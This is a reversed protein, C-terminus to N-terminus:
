VPSVRRVPFPRHPVVLQTSTENLNRKHFSMQYHFKLVHKVAPTPYSGLSARRHIRSTSNFQSASMECIVKLKATGRGEFLCLGHSVYSSMHIKLTDCRSPYSLFRQYCVILVTRIYGTLRTPYLIIRFAVTVM